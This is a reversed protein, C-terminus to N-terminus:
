FNQHFILSVVEHSHGKEHFCNSQTCIFDIFNSVIRDIWYNYTLLIWEFTQLHLHFFFLRVEKSCFRIEHLYCTVQRLIHHNIVLFYNQLRNWIWFWEYSRMYLPWTFLKKNFNKTTELLNSALHKMLFPWWQSNTTKNMLLFLFCRKWYKLLFKTLCSIHWIICIKILRNYSFILFIM